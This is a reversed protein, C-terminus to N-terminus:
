CGGSPSGHFTNCGIHGVPSLRIFSSPKLCNNVRQWCLFRAWFTEIQRTLRFYWLMRIFSNHDWVLPTMSLLKLRLNWRKKKKKITCCIDLFCSNDLPDDFTAVFDSIWVRTNIEAAESIVLMLLALWPTILAWRPFVPYNCWSHFNGKGSPPNWSACLCCHERFCKLPKGTMMTKKDPRLLIIGHFSNAVPLLLWWGSFTNRIDM